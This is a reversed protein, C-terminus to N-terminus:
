GGLRQLGATALGRTELSSEGHVKAAGGHRHGGRAM